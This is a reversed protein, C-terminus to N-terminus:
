DETRSIFTVPIFAETYRETACIELLVKNTACVKEGATICIETDASICDMTRPTWHPLRIDFDTKDATFGEPLWVKVHVLYPQNGYAKVNNLLKIKLKKQENATIAVGNEYTVFATAYAFKQTITDSKLSHVSARMEDTEESTGYPVAFAEAINDPVEDDGSVLLVDKRNQKLVSPALASVRDTLQTCSGIKQWSIGQNISCTVIKDGIHERWDEPIGATGYMIGLVSGVTAATCDTDDGCNIATLMSKKFDGNGYLLGLVAYAVNSPAEFWGDGIDANANFIEERAQMATKGSDYASLLIKISQAMRSEHPIKALGIEILKRIDSVVFAASEIAAVFAAAYTGEGTGHDVKADELAYRVALDPCAPCLTAWIETRIWAGNSHKWENIEGCVPPQIGRQMNRKSIGYENWFPTIFSLWYEGLISSTLNAGEYEMAHLWILQLDLDDNPLVEDPLTKFGKVDLTHRVGEYPGGMTGGINKGIWCAYVKDKYSSFNLKM